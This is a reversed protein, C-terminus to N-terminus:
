NNSDLIERASTSTLMLQVTTLGMAKVNQRIGEEVTMGHEECVRAFKAIQEADNLVQQVKSYREISSLNDALYQVRVKKAYAIQKESAGTLEPLTFGYKELAADCKATKQAALQRKYCDPCITINKAAWTEYNDAEASNRCFHVHEFENGCETCTLTLKVKAMTNVGKMERQKIHKYYVM